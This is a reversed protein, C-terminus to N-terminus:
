FDEATVDVSGSSQHYKDQAKGLCAAKGYDQFAEHSITVAVHQGTASDKARFRIRELTDGVRDGIQLAM